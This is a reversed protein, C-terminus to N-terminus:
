PRLKDSQHLIAPLNWTPRVSQRLPLHGNHKVSHDKRIACVPVVAKSPVTNEFRFTKNLIKLQQQNEVPDPGRLHQRSGSRTLRTPGQIHAM